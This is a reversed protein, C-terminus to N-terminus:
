GVPREIRHAEWHKRLRELGPLDGRHYGDRAVRFAESLTELSREEEGAMRLIIALTRLRQVPDEPWISGEGPIRRSQLFDLVDALTLFREQFPMLANLLNSRLEEGTRAQWDDNGQRIEEAGWQRPSSRPPVLGKPWAIACSRIGTVQRPERRGQAALYGPVYVGGVLWLAPMQKRYMVKGRLGQIWVLDGATRSFMRGHKRFGARRLLPALEERVLQNIVPDFRANIGPEYWEAITVV